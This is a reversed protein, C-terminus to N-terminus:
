YEQWEKTVCSVYESIRSARRTTPHPQVDLQVLNRAWYTSLLLWWLTLVACESGWTDLLLSAYRRQEYPSCRLTPAGYHQQNLFLYSSQVVYM